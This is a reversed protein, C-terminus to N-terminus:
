FSSGKKFLLVYVSIEEEGFSAEGLAVFTTKPPAGLYQRKLRKTTKPILKLDIAGIKFGQLSRIFSTRKYKSYKMM